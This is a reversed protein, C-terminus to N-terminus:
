TPRFLVGATGCSIEIHHQAVDETREFEIVARTPSQEIVEASFGVDPVASRLSLQGDQCQAAVRGGPGSWVTAAGDSPATPPTTVRTFSVSSVRGVGTGATSISWWIATSALAVTLLWVAAVLPVRRRKM